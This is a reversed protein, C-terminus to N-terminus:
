SQSNQTAGNIPAAMPARIQLKKSEGSSVSHHSQRLISLVPRAPKALTPGKQLFSAMLPSLCGRAGKSAFSSLGPEVFCPHRTVGASHRHGCRCKPVTGCLAFRRHVASSATPTVPLPSLTRYFRVPATTVDSAHYVGGPALGFLPRAGKLPLLPESRSIRTPQKLREAIPPRSSHNGGRPRDKPIGRASVSGPKHPGRISKRFKFCHRFV